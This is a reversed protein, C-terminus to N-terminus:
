KLSFIIPVHLVINEDPKPFEGSLNQITKIAARSLLESGSKMVEIDSVIASNSLNFKLIVEGMIGRKRARRPYYLNDSLLQSIKALHNDIYKEQSTKKPLVIPKPMPNLIPKVISTKKAIKVIIEPIEKEAKPIIKKVVVEQVKEEIEKKVVPVKKRVVTKIKKSPAKVKKVIKKVQQKQPPKIDKPIEKTVPVCINLNICVRKDQEVKNILTNASKYILLFLVVAVVHVVISVTLSPTHYKSM